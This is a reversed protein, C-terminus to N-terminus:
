DDLPVARPLKLMYGDRIRVVKANEISRWGYKNDTYNGTTGVLDYLDAVSVFDYMDILEDMKMLVEEAEGRSDFIIDDYDYNGRFSSTGARRRRDDREYYKSYSVKSSSKKSHGTEGYLMMDIGNTVVDSIAKKLAPILVEGFIYSKVSDVDEQIFTDAFKRAKNRKKSRVSGKVVKEVKKEQTQQEKYKHSNPKILSLENEWEEM